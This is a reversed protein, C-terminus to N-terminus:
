SVVRLMWFPIVKEVLKNEKVRRNCREVHVRLCAISQTHDVDEKAMQINKVLFTPRYVKGPFLNVVLFGKDVMIAMQPTLLKNIGSKKFIENDSM